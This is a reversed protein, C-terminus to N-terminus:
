KEERRKSRAQIRLFELEEAFLSQRGSGEENSNLASGLSYEACLGPGDPRYVGKKIRRIVKYGRLAKLIVSIDQQSKGLLRSLPTQCLFFGERFFLENLHYCISAILLADKGLDIRLKLEVPKSRASKCATELLGEPRRVEHYKVVFDIWCQETQSFRPRTRSLEISFAEVIDRLKALEPNNLRKLRRALCWLPDQESAFDRVAKKILSSGALGIQSDTLRFTQSDHFETVSPPTPAGAAAPKVVNPRAFISCNDREKM